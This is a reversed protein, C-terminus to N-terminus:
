ASSRDEPPPALIGRGRDHAFGHYIKWAGDHGDQIGHGGFIRGQVALAPGQENLTKKKDDGEGPRARRTEISKGFRDDMVQVSPFVVM